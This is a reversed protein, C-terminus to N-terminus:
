AAFWSKMRSEEKKEREGGEFDLREALELELIYRWTLWQGLKWPVASSGAPLM